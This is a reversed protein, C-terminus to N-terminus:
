RGADDGKDCEGTKSYAEGEERCVPQQEGSNQREGAKPGYETKASRARTAKAPLSADGPVVDMGQIKDRIDPFREVLAHVLLNMSPTIAVEGREWRGYTNRGIQLLDCIEELKMNLVRRVTKLQEPTLLPKLGFELAVRQKDIELSQEHTFTIEGCSPCTECALDRLLHPEGNVTVTLETTSTQYDANFCNTCIM